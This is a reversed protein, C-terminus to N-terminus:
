NFDSFIKEMEYAPFNRFNLSDCHYLSVRINNTDLQSSLYQAVSNVTQFDAHEYRIVDGQKLSYGKYVTDTLIQFRNGNKRKFIAKNQLDSQRINRLIGRLYGNQRNFLLTWSYIPLAMDLPIPYHNLSFLYQKATKLSIISNRVHIDTLPDMNYVMLLGKDVPPIGNKSRYKIQHLRITASLIKHRFYPQAKLKKLLTFYLDKNHENWDCDIQIEKPQEQGDPMKNKLLISINKAYFDLTSRSMANLARTTIFVVPIISSKTHFDKAFNVIALPKVSKKDASIDVDFFRIYLFQPQVSDLVSQEYGSINVNTKWYYFGRNVTRKPHQQCSSFIILYFIILCLLREPEPWAPPYYKKV